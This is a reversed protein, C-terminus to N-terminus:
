ADERMRDPVVLTRGQLVAQDPQLGDKVAILAVLRRVSESAETAKMAAPGVIAWEADTLLRQSM